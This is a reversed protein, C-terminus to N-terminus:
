GGNDNEMCEAYRILWSELLIQGNLPHQLIRADESLAQQLSWLRPFAARLALRHLSVAQEPFYRPAAGVRVRFLDHVWRSLWGWAQTVEQKFEEALGFAAEFSGTQLAELFRQRRAMRQADAYELALLPAGGAEDLLRAGSEVGQADLWALAEARAPLAFALRRCRSVLTAPMHRLRHTVLILMVQAPPEELTKLLANAANMNLNEAPEILVVRWGRQHASLSLFESVGRVADIRIAHSGKKEGQRAAFGEGETRAPMEEEEQAKRQAPELLHFDPHHGQAFWRCAPCDGCADAEGPAACLLWRAFAMAFARKGVGAPGHLLLAHPLRERERLLAQWRSLNWPYVHAAPNM